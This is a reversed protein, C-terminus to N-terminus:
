GRKLTLFKENGWKQILDQCYINITKHILEMDEEQLPINNHIYEIVGRMDSADIVYITQLIPKRQGKIINPVYYIDGLFEGDKSFDIRIKGDILNPVVMLQTLLNQIDQTTM